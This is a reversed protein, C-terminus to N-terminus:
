WFAAEGIHLLVTPIHLCETVETNTRFSLPKLIEDPKLTTRPLLECMKVTRLAPAELDDTLTARACCICLVRVFTVAQRSLFTATITHNHFIYQQGQNNLKHLIHLWLLWAASASLISEKPQIKKSDCAGPWYKHRISRNPHPTLKSSNIQKEVLTTRLSRTELGVVINPWNLHWISYM